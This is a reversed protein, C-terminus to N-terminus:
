ATSDNMDDRPTAGDLATGYLYEHLRRLVEFFERRHVVIMDKVQAEQELPIDQEREWASRAEWDYRMREREEKPLQEFLRSGIDSLFDALQRERDFYPQMLGTVEALRDRGSLVALPAGDTETADAVIGLPSDVDEDGDDLFEQQSVDM